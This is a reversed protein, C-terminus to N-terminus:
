KTAEPRVTITGEMIREVTGSPAVREIDYVYAVSNRLKLDATSSASIKVDVKGTNNTQDQLSFTLSFSASASGYQTRAQGRFTYGTLDVPTTGNLFRIERLFDAGQDVIFNVTNAM